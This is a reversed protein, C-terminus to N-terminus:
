VLGATPPSSIDTGRMLCAVARLDRRPGWAPEPMDVPSKRMVRHVQASHKVAQRWSNIDAMNGGLCTM